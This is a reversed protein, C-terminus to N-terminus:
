SRDVHIGARPGDAYSCATGSASPSRWRYAKSGRGCGGPWVRQLAADPFGAQRLAASANRAHRPGEHREHWAGYVVAVALLAACAMLGERLDGRHRPSPRRAGSALDQLARTM